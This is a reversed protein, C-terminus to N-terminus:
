SQATKLWNEWAAYDREGFKKGSMIMLVQYATDHLNPQLMKLNDMIEKSAHQQIYKAYRPQVVLSAVMYLSKNRDVELPFNLAAVIKEIPFNPNKMKSITMGLVRMVNNRVDGSSDNMAPVLISILEEGNKIHALLFAAAARKQPDKDQRLIAILQAKDKPVDNEFIAQYKKLTPYEFGFICHYAPCSTFKPPVKEKFFVNLGTKEYEQWAHILNDPDPLSQTPPPLILSLRKRDKVDVIDITIYINKMDAYMVPSTNVFSFQGMTKIKEDIGKILVAIKKMNDASSMSAPSLFINALEQFQAAFRQNIEQASIQTTKYVDIIPAPATKATVNGFYIVSSCSLLTLLIKKMQIQM